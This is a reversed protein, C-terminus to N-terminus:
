YTMQPKAKSTYAAPVHPLEFLNLIKM